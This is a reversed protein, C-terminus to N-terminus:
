THVWQSFFAPWLFPTHCVAELQLDGGASRGLARAADVWAGESREKSIVSSTSDHEAETDADLLGVSVRGVLLM